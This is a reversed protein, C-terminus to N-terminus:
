MEGEKEDIIKKETTYTMTFFLGDIDDGVPV